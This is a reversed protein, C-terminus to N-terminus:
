KTRIFLNTCVEARCPEPRLHTKCHLALVEAHYSRYYVVAIISTTNIKLSHNVCHFGNLGNKLMYDKTRLRLRLQLRVKIKLDRIKTPGISM